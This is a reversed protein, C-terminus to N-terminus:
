NLEGLEASIVPPDPTWTQPQSLPLPVNQAVNMRGGGKVELGVIKGEAECLGRTQELGLRQELDASKKRVSM